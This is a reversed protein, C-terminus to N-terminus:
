RSLSLIQDEALQAFLCKPVRELLQPIILAHVILKDLQREEHMERPFLLRGQKDGQLPTELPVYIDQIVVRGALIGCCGHM